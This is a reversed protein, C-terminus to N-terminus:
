IELRGVNRIHNQFKIDRLHEGPSFIGGFGWGDPEGLHTILTWGTEGTGAAQYLMRGDDPGHIVAGAPVAPHRLM